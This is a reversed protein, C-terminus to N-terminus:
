DITKVPKLMRAREAANQVSDLTASLLLPDASMAEIFARIEADSTKHRALIEPRRDAEAQTLELMVAIFEARSLGGQPLAPGAPQNCAVTLLLAILALRCKLMASGYRALSEADIHCLQAARVNCVTAAPQM